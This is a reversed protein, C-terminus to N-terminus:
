DGRWITWMFIRLVFKLALIELKHAPYNKESLKFCRSAYAVVRDKGDQNHYQLEGLGSTSADTHIKFPKSYGAYALVPLRILKEKFTDFSIHLRKTWVFSASMSRKNENKKSICHCILLDNLPKNCIGRHAAGQKLTYFSPLIKSGECKLFMGNRSMKYNGQNLIFENKQCQM